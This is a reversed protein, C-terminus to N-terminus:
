TDPDSHLGMKQWDEFGMIRDYGHLALFQGTGAFKRDAGQMFTQRYGARALVDGLCTMKEVTHGFGGVSHNGHAFPILTGCQSNVLGEITIYSSAHLHPVFAHKSILGSLNPTLHPYAKAPAMAVGGSEIYLLILNKAPTAAAAKLNKKLTPHLHILPSTSWAHLRSVPVTVHPSAFWNSAGDALQRTPTYQNGWILFTLSM